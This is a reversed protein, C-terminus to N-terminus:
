ASKNNANWTVASLFSIPSVALVAARMGVSTMSFTVDLLILFELFGSLIQCEVWIHKQSSYKKDKFQSFM